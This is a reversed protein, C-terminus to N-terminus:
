SSYVPTDILAFCGRRSLLRPHFILVPPGSTLVVAPSRTKRLGCANGHLLICKFLLVGYSSSASGGTTSFRRIFAQTVSALAFCMLLFLTAEHSLLAPVLLRLWWWRVCKRVTFYSVDVKSVALRRPAVPAPMHWLRSLCMKFVNGSRIQKKGAAQGHHSATSSPQGLAALPASLVSM